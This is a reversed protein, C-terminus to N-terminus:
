FGRVARARHSGDKYYDDQAGNGFYQRWAYYSSSSSQSSSWYVDDRFGGLGNRHLNQYMLNLEDVSPLFWDDKDGITLAVCLQSVRGTEGLEQLKTNIIQTNAKGTGIGTQTGSVDIGQFTGDKWSGTYTGWQANFESSAPAAELYRWGDDSNGKDYFIIGGAPGRSGVKYGGGTIPDTPNKKDDSCALMVMLCILFIISMVLYNLKKM